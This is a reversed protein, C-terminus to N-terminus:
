KIMEKPVKGKTGSKLMMDIIEPKKDKFALTGLKLKLDKALKALGAKSFKELYEKSIVFEKSINLGAEVGLAELEETTYKKLRSLVIKQIIDTLKANTLGSLKSFQRVEWNKSKKSLGLLESITEDNGNESEFLEHVLIRNLQVDKIKEPMGKIYFDRKFFDVRNEKQRAEYQISADKEPDGTKPLATSKREIAKLKRLTRKFCDANLCVPKIQGAPSIIYAFTQCTSSCEEQFKNKDFSQAEYGTFDVVDHLAKYEKSGYEPETKMVIVKKGKVKLAAEAEKQFESIKKSFCDGNLCKGSLSNDKDFLDKMLNGNFVCANCQEKSFCATDLRQSYHPLESEARAPSYRYQKIEAALQKQYKPNSLRTLVIGHDKSLEGKKIMEKVEPALNLLSLMKKIHYESKGTIVMIDAPKYEEGLDKYALAEDIPNLDKRQLNEILQFEIRDEKDIDSILVPISKIGAYKAANFRRFGAVLEYKDKSVTRVLLPQIIGAEKISEILSSLSDKTINKRINEGASIQDIDLTALKM